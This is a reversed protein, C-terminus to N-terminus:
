ALLDTLSTNIILHYNNIYVNNHSLLALKDREERERERKREREKEERERERERERLQYTSSITM